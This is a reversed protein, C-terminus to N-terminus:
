GQPADEGITADFEGLAHEGPRLSRRFHVIGEIRVDGEHVEVRPLSGRLQRGRQLANVARDNRAGTEAVDGVVEDGDHM